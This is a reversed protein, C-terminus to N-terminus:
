ASQSQLEAWLKSREAWYSEWRSNAGPPTSPVLDSPDVTDIDVDTDIDTDLVDIDIDVDIDVDVDVDIDSPVDVDVDIDGPDSTNTVSDAGLLPNTDFVRIRLSGEASIQTEVTRSAPFRVLFARELTPRAEDRMRMAFVSDVALREHAYDEIEQASPQPRNARVVSSISYGHGSAILDRASKSLGAQELASDLDRRAERLASVDLCTDILLRELPTVSV